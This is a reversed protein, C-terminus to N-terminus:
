PASAKLLDLVIRQKAKAETSGTGGRGTTL